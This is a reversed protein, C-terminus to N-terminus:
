LMQTRNPKHELSLQIEPNFITPDAQVHMGLSGLWARITPTILENESAAPSCRQLPLLHANKAGEELRPKFYILSYTQHNFPHVKRLDYKSM